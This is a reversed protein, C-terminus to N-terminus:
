IVVNRNFFSRFKHEICVVTYENNKMKNKIILWYIYMEHKFPSPYAVFMIGTGTCVRVPTAAFDSLINFYKIQIQM